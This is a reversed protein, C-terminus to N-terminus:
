KKPMIMVKVRDSKEGDASKELGAKVLNGQMDYHILESTFSDQNQFLQADGAFELLEEKLHYTMSDASGKWLGGDDAEQQMKVPKGTSTIQYIGIDDQFITILDANLNLTGQTFVVNGSYLSKGAGQLLTVNDASIEIPKDSDDSRAFSSSHSILLSLTVATVFSHHYM